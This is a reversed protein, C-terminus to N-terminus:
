SFWNWHPSNPKVALYDIVPEPQPDEATSPILQHRELDAVYCEYGFSEIAARLESCTTLFNPLAYGNCEFFLPPADARSLLKTMGRVAALESGEVDMKICDIRPHGREALLDDISIAPVVVTGLEHEETVAGFPGDARFRLTGRSAAVAAAVLEVNEFVNLALASRVLALNEAAAEIGIVQHGHAAALLTFGGVHVGLDLLTGGPPLFRHLLNWHPGFPYRGQALIQSIPDAARPMTCALFDIGQPGTVRNTTWRM